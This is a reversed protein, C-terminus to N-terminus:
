HRLDARSRPEHRGQEPVDGEVGRENRTNRMGRRHANRPKTGGRALADCSLTRKRTMTRPKKKTTSVDGPQQENRGNSTGNTAATAMQRIGVETAMADGSVAEVVDVKRMLRVTTYARSRRPRQCGKPRIEGELSEQGPGDTGVPTAM